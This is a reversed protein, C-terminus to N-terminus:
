SQYGLDDYRFTPVYIDDTTEEAMYAYFPDRLGESGPSSVVRNSDPHPRSLFTYYTDAYAYRDTGRLQADYDDYQDFGHSGSLYHNAYDDDWFFDDDREFAPDFGDEKMSPVVGVNDSVIPTDVASGAAVDAESDETIPLSYIYESYDVDDGYYHLLGGVGAHMYDHADSAEISTVDLPENAFLPDTDWFVFPNAMSIITWGRINIMTTLVSSIHHVTSYEVFKCPIGTEQLNISSSAMLSAEPGRLYQANGSFSCLIVSLFAMHLLAVTIAPAKSTNLVSYMRLIIKGFFDKIPLFWSSILILFQIVSAIYFALDSFFYSL